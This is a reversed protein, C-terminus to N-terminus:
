SHTSAAARGNRWPWPRASPAARRIGRRRPRAARPRAGLDRRRMEARGIHRHRRCWCRCPNRRPSSAAYNRRSARWGRRRPRADCGRSSRAAASGRALGELVLLHGAMEPGLPYGRLAELHDGGIGLAADQHDLTPAPCGAAIHEDLIRDLALRGSPQRERRRQPALRLRRPPSAPRSVRRAPRPSSAEQHLERHAIEVVLLDAIDLEGVLHEPQRDAAVDERADDVPLQCLAAGAGVLGLPDALDLPVM